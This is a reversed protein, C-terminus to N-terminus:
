TVKNRFNSLHAVRVAIKCLQQDTTTSTTPLGITWDSFRRLWRYLSSFRDKDGTLELYIREKGNRARIIALPPQDFEALTRNLFDEEGTVRHTLHMDRRLGSTPSLYERETLRAMRKFYFQEDGSEPDTMSIVIEGSFELAAEPGIMGRAITLLDALTTTDSCNNALPM